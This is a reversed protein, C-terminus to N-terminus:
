QSCVQALKQGESLMLLCSRLGKLCWQRELWSLLHYDWFVKFVHNFEDGRPSPARSLHFVWNQCAYKLADSSSQSQQRAETAFITFATMARIVEIDPCDQLSASTSHNQPRLALFAPFMLFDPLSTFEQIAQFVPPFPLRPIITCESITELTNSFDEMTVCVSSAPTMQWARGHPTQLWVRGSLTQLWERGDMTQLWERGSLTQLREQTQLLERGSPSQLWERGGETQLVRTGGQVLMEFQSQAQPRSSVRHLMDNVGQNQLWDKGSQTQLWDQGSETQMWNRGRETQLWSRASQTRVRDQRSQTQLWSQGGETQLWLKGCEIQLWDQGARTQLWTKGGETRLWGEAGTTRLWDKWGQTQLWDHGGPTQLWDKGAQTQLWDEGWQIRLWDMGGQTELWDKGSDTWLWDKGGQTRLWDEGGRTRLWKEGGSTQLWDKGGHAQLWDKGGQTELWAQGDQTQLWDQGSQIQLWAKGSKSWLWDRAGQTQLWARGDLTKLWCYLEPGRDGRLWLLGLLAQSPEPPQVAFALSHTLNRSDHAELAQSQNKLKSLADLFATSEPINRIMLHLCSQALVFHPLSINQVQRLMSNSVDSAYDRVSSHVINVPLRSDAPIDIVSRLQLLVTELDRGFGPGILEAIQSIPLPDALAAVISLHLYAQRPNACTLLIHDYLKFVETRPLLEHTLELMLELRELPDSDGDDIFKMMTSAVIFRRGARSVLRTLQDATPRPFDPSRGRLETFSYQLFLYIDKDTDDGDLSITAADGEESTDVPIECVLLRMVEIRIAKLIHRESRSTLLMHIVPLEPDRLAQGLLYILDAVAEPECEDLADVVFVPPACGGLRSRLHLLPRRFLVEMQDHLSKHSDLVAPDERIARNVVQRISPFNRALQYALTAFFHGTTRRSTHNRSFFFSGALRKEITTYQIVELSKMREAVTFAVASKGAGAIGHLWIIQSEERKDLVGYIFKLLDVRTGELCKSHPQRAPSDYEADLVAVRSLKEWPEESAELM